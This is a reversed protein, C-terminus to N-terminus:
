PQDPLTLMNQTCGHNENKTFVIGGLLRKSEIAAQWNGVLPTLGTFCTGKCGAIQQLLKAIALRGVKWIFWLVEPMFFAYIRWLSNSFFRNTKTITRM